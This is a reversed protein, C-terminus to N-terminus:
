KKSNLIYHMIIAWSMMVLAFIALGFTLNM